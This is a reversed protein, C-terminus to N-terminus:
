FFLLICVFIISSTVLFLLDTSVHRGYKLLSHQVLVTDFWQDVKFIFHTYKSFLYILVTVHPKTQYLLLPLTLILSMQFKESVKNTYCTPLLHHTCSKALV